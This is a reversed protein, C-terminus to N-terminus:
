SLDTWSIPSVGLKESLTDIVLKEGPQLDCHMIATRLTDYVYEEKTRHAKQAPTLTLM